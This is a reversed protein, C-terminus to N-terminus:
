SAFQTVKAFLDSLWLITSFCGTASHIGIKANENLGRQAVANM